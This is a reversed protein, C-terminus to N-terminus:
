FGFRSKLANYNQTIESGSLARNYVLIVNIIGNWYESTRNPNPTTGVYPTTITPTASTSNGTGYSTNQLYCFLSSGSRGFTLMYYNNLTLTAQGTTNIGDTFWNGYSMRPRDGSTGFFLGNGYSNMTYLWDWDSSINYGDTHKFVITFTFDSAYPSSGLTHAGYANQGFIIGGGNVSSFTTNTLSVNNGNGTLDTWTTGTGSYSSLNGADLNSILGSSVINTTTGSNIWITNTNNAWTIRQDLTSGTAGASILISNLGTTDTAVRATWGGSGGIQYVTYGGVPADIGTYFGTISTPGLDKTSGSFYSFSGKVVAGSIATTGSKIALTAM